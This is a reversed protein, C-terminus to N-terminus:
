GELFSGVSAPEEEDATLALHAHRLLRAALLRRCFGDGTDIKPERRCCFEPILDHESRM